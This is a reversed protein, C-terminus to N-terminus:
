YLATHRHYLSETYDIHSVIGHVKSCDRLGERVGQVSCQVKNTAHSRANRELM